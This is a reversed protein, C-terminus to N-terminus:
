IASQAMLTRRGAALQNGGCVAGAYAPAPIVLIKAPIQINATKQPIIIDALRTKRRAFCCFSCYHLVFLVCVVFLVFGVKRNFIVQRFVKRNIGCFTRLHKRKNKDNARCNKYIAVLRCDGSIRKHLRM